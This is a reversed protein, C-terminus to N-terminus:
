MELRIKTLVQSSVECLESLSIINISGYPADTLREFCFRYLSLCPLLEAAELPAQQGRLAMLLQAVRNWCQNLLNMLVEEMGDPQALHLLGDKVGQDLAEQMDGAFAQALAQEYQVRLTIGEHTVAMPLLLTMFQEEGRRLPMAYYCLLNLRELSNEAKSVAKHAQEQARQARQACLTELVSHKSEFHHYFSGKSCQLVDLVDQVSTQEFGKQYFLRQSVDLIAQKKAEGKRM